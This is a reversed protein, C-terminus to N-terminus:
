RPSKNLLTFEEFGFWMTLYDYPITTMDSILNLLRLWFLGEIFEQFITFFVGESKRKSIWPRTWVKRYVKEHQEEEDDDLLLVLVNCM